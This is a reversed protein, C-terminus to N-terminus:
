YGDGTLNSWSGHENYGEIREGNRDEVWLPGWDPGFATVYEYLMRRAYGTSHFDEDIVEIENTGQYQGMIKYM